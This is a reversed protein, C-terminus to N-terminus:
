LTEDITKLANYVKTYAQCADAPLTYGDTLRRIEAVASSTDTGDLIANKLTGYSAFIDSLEPHNGGHVRVVVPLVKDLVAICETITENM